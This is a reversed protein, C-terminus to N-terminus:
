FLSVKQGSEATWKILYVQVSGSVEESSTELMATALLTASLMSPALVGLRYSIPTSHCEM